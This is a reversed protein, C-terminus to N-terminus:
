HQVESKREEATTLRAARAEEILALQQEQTLTQIHRLRERRRATQRLHQQNAPTLSADHAVRTM